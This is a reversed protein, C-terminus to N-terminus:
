ERAAVEPLKLMMVDPHWLALAAVDAASPRALPLPQWLANLLAVLGRRAEEAVAPAIARSAPLAEVARLFTHVRSRHGVQWEKEPLLAQKGLITDGTGMPLCDATAAEWLLCGLSWMDAAWRTGARRLYSGEEFAEPPQYCLTGRPASPASSSRAAARQAVELLALKEGETQSSLLHATLPSPREERLPASSRDSNPRSRAQLVIEEAYTASTAGCALAEPPEHASAGAATEAGGHAADFSLPGAHSGSHPAPHGAAEGAEGAAAAEGSPGVLLLASTERRALGWDGLKILDRAGKCRRVLVNELKVDCHIVGQTHAYALASALQRCVDVMGGLDLGVDFVVDSLTGGDCLEMLICVYNQDAVHHGFVDRYELINPHRLEMLHKAEEVVRMTAQFADATSGVKVM